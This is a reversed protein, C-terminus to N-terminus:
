YPLDISANGSADFGDSYGGGYDSELGLYVITFRVPLKDITFKGARCPVPSYGFMEQSSSSFTIALDPTDSCTAGSAPKGGVTWTTHTTRVQSADLCEYSRACVLGTGCEADTTCGYGSYGDEGGWGSGLGDDGSPSTAQPGCGVLLCLALVARM